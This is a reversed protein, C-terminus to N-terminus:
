DSVESVCTVLCGSSPELYSYCVCVCVCVSHGVKEQEEEEKTVQLLVCHLISAMQSGSDATSIINARERGGATSAHLFILGSHRFTVDQRLLM